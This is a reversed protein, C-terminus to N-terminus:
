LAFNVEARQDVELTIGTQNIANFGDAEVLVAYQGPQLLTVTYYGSENTSVERGAATALNTVTVKAGPIVADTQDTVRGGLTASQAMCLM